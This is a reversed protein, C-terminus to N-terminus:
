IEIIKISDVPCHKIARQINNDITINPDIVEAVRWNMEFANWAIQVCKRCWVCRNDISLIKDTKNSTSDNDENFSSDIETNSSSNIQELNEKPKTKEQTSSCATLTFSIILLSILLTINKENNM